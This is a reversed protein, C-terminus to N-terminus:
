KLKMLLYSYQMATLSAIQDFTGAGTHGGEKSEYYYVKYGLDTMKAVMKRAHAAPVRDDKANANFFVEPYKVGKKLNHYPSYKKIYEWEEAKDPDGYEGIAGAGTGLKSFRKMDLLPVSCVVANYLDPRQTFAVGMLLGGNSGGIIGLHKSSTIKRAILDEAVATFDDYVNQRKEKVGDEHWKPGFEGGGRINALVYVGGYELWSVGRISSYFPLQSVEFGGYGNMLTPNKGNLEMKKSAVVFYPIMTGDKSKAKYQLVQYKSLDFFASFSQIPKIVNTEADSTYLTSSTLFNQFKFFFQDSFDDTPGLNIIGYDPANVKTKAWHGGTYAYTNLESKINTLSNVVLKNKTVNIETISSLEDPKWIVRIDKKGGILGKFDASVLSGTKYLTNNVNWDSRLTFVLQNSLLTSVQADEPIEIKLTQGDKIVFLESTTSTVFRVIELYNIKDDRVRYGSCGVDTSKGSFILKASDLPTGRQWLKVQMPYGANTITGPGFDSQIILTNEDLYSASGKASKVNFGNEIFSKSNMDFERIAFADGGGESLFIVFRNYDPYVGNVGMFVWNTNEKKALADIDLVAEWDSDGRLYKEKAIRRWLGRQHASDQQLNYIFKGYLDPEIIKDKRNYVALCKKYIDEYPKQKSFLDFSAKNQADVWDNTKQSNEELWLYPDDQALSCQTSILLALLFFHIAKMM